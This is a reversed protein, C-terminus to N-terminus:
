MLFLYRGEKNKKKKYCHCPNVNRPVFKLFNQSLVDGYINLLFYKNLYTELKPTSISISEWIMILWGIKSTSLFCLFSICSYTYPYNKWVNPVCYLSFVSNSDLKRLFEFRYCTVSVLSSFKLLTKLCTNLFYQGKNQWM